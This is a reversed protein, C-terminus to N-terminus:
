LNRSLDIHRVYFQGVARSGQALVLHALPDLQQEKGIPIECRLGVGDQRLKTEATRMVTHNMKDPAMRLHRNALQEADQSDGLLAQVTNKSMQYPLFEDLLSWARM